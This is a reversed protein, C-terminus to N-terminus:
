PGVVKTSSPLTTRIMARHRCRPHRPMPGLLKLKMFDFM